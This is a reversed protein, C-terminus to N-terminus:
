EDLFQRLETIVDAETVGREAALHAVLWKLTVITGGMLHSIDVQLAPGHTPAHTRIAGVQNLRAFARNMIDADPNEDWLSVVDILTHAAQRGAEPLPTM